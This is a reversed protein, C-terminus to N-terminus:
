RRAVGDACVCTGTLAAADDEGLGIVDDPALEPPDPADEVADEDPEPVLELEVGSVM